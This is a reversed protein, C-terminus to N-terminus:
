AQASKVKGRPRPASVPAALVGGMGVLKRGAVSMFGCLQALHFHCALHPPVMKQDGLLEVQWDARNGCGDQFCIKRKPM